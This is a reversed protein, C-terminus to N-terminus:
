DPEVTPLPRAERAWRIWRGVEQRNPVRGNRLIRRCETTELFPEVRQWLAEATMGALEEPNNVGCSVLIQAEHGRLQPVCCALVAQQQWQGVGEATIRHVNLRKALDDPEARLLDEVTRVGAEGL